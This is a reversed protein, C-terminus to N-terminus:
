LGPCQAAVCTGINIMTPGTITDGGCCWARQIRRVILRRVYEASLAMLLRVARGTGDRIVFTVEGSDEKTLREYPQPALTEPRAHVVSADLFLSHTELQCRPMDMARFSTWM